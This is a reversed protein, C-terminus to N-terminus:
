KLVEKLKKMAANFVTSLPTERCVVARSNGNFPNKTRMIKDGDEDYYFDLEIDPYKKLKSRFKITEETHEKVEFFWDDKFCSAAGMDKFTNPTIIGREYNESLIKKQRKQHNM